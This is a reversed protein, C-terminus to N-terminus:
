VRYYIYTYIYKYYKYLREKKEAAFNYLTDFNYFVFINM